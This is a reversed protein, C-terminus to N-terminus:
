RSCWGSCNKACTPDLDALLEGIIKTDIARLRNLGAADLPHTHLEELLQRSMAAIRIVRDRWPKPNAARATAPYRAGTTDATM